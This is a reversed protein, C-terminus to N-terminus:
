MQCLLLVSSIDTKVKRGRRQASFNKLPLEHITIEDKKTLFDVDGEVTNDFFDGGGLVQVRPESDDEIKFGGKGQGCCIGDGYQDIITYQYCM